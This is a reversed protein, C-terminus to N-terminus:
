ILFWERKTGISLLNQFCNSISANHKWKNKWVQEIIYFFWIANKEIQFTIIVQIQQSFSYKVSYLNPEKLYIYCGREKMKKLYKPYINNAQLYYFIWWELRWPIRKIKMLIGHLLYTQWLYWLFVLYDVSSKMAFSSNGWM